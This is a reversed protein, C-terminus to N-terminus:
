LYIQNDMTWNNLLTRLNHM